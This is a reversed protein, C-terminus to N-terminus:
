VEVVQDHARAEAEKARQEGELAVDADRTAQEALRWLCVAGGGGAGLLVVVVLLAYVAALTPRRRAWKLLREGRGVPRAVIPEGALLRRLDEALELASAYRNSPEKQLCKLCVTE